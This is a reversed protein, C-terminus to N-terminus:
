ADDDDERRDETIPAGLRRALQRAESQFSSSKEALGAVVVDDGRVRAWLRLRPIYFTIMLGALLLGAAAWIFNVGPDRRVEIGAFERRGEFVYQRGAVEVPEGAYMTLAPGDLVGLATLYPVGDPTESLVLASRDHEGPIGSTRLAPLATAEKFTFQLGSSDRSEGKALTFSADADSRDFAVLQWSEDPLQQVGMWYEAGDGPVTVLTGVAWPEGTDSGADPFPGDAPPIRETPVIIDDLLVAGTADRVTVAPAPVFEELPLAEHYITNGTAADRVRLAAGEGFYGAQHFRYGGYSVPGNVTSVGRTVERGGQYVVLETRYDLPTGSADFRGVADVVEVQMQNPHSVAFVPSTTGEAIFLANTFGGMRSILGGALFMILALHSVFTGLQAWSFRDAFLYTAAGDQFRRVRFWRRRLLTELRAGVDSEGSAGADGLAVRNAARDFFADPVREQPRTVNRWIPPLRNATCVCVSVVLLALAGLFWRAGFVNFLGLRYFPETLPGFREEQVALWAQVAADNGRMAVPVQPLVVSLLGSLALFGILALAFRVSTLLRWAPLFPDLGRLARAWGRPGLGLARRTAEARAM